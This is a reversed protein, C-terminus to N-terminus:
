TRRKRTRKIPSTAIKGNFCGDCYAFLCTHDRHNLANKCVRVNAYPTIKCYRTFDMGRSKSTFLKNCESCKNPYNDTQMANDTFYTAEVCILSLDRHDCDKQLCGNEMRPPSAVEAVEAKRKNKGPTSPAPTKLAEATAEPSPTKNKAQTSKVATEKVQVKNSSAKPATESASKAKPSTVKIQSSPAFYRPAKVPWNRPAKAPVAKAPTAAFQALNV